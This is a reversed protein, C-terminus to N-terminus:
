DNVEWSPGGNAFTLVPFATHIHLGHYAEEEIRDVILRVSDIRATRVIDMGGTYRATLPTVRAEVRVSIWTPYNEDLYQLAAQGEASNLAETVALAAEPTGAFACVIPTDNYNMEDARGAMGDNTVLVHKGGTHGVTPKRKGKPPRFRRESARLIKDVEATSYIRRRQIPM